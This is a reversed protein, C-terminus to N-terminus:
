KRIIIKQTTTGKSNRVQLFYLGNGLKGLDLNVTTAATNYLRYVPQGSEDTVSINANGLDAASGTITFRGSSVTPYVQLKVVQSGTASDPSIYFVARTLEALGTRGPPMISDYRNPSKDVTKSNDCAVIKAVFSGGTATAQFDQGLVIQSTATFTTTQSPDNSVLGGGGSGESSGALITGAASENTPVTGTNYIITGSCSPCIDVYMVSLNFQVPPTSTLTTSYPYIWLQNYPYDAIFTQTQDWRQNTQSFQISQSYATEQPSPTPLLNGSGNVVSQSLGTTVIANVTGGGTPDNNTIYTNYIIRLDYAHHPLLTIPLSTFMGEGYVGALGGPANNADVFRSWMYAAYLTPPGDPLPNQYPMMEPTGHSRIWGDGCADTWTAASTENGCATSFDGNPLCHAQGYGDGSALTLLTLFSFSLPHLINRM